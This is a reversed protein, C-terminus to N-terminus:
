VVLQLRRRWAQVPQEILRYSLWTLPLCLISAVIVWAPSGPVCTYSSIKLALWHFLYLSYSVRGVGLLAPHCLLARLRVYRPDFLVAPVLGLLAVGQLSYRVTQRMLEDRWILSLVLLLLALGFAAPHAARQLWRLGGPRALLLSALCGFLIADARTHTLLYTHDAAQAPPLSMVAYVRALLALGCGGVLVVILQRPWRALLTFILPFVLYFHEEVALSWLIGFHTAEPSPDAVLYYNEAYLLAAVVEGGAVPQRTLLLWSVVGLVLALLPPYLRLLRRTYFRGLSLRDHHRHEALLLRTILLGSLFFFVTVGLGGPVWRELGLHALLVLLISLGRLGDLAPMYPTTPAPRDPPNVWAATTTASTM